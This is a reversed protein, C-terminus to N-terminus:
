GRVYAMGQVRRESSTGPLLVQLVPLGLCERCRRDPRARGGVLAQCMKGAADRACTTKNKDHFSAESESLTIVHRTILTGPGQRGTAATCFRLRSTCKKGRATPTGSGRV